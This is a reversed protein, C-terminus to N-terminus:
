QPEQELIILDFIYADIHHLGHKSLSVVTFSIRIVIMSNQAVMTTLMPLMDARAKRNVRVLSNKDSCYQLFLSHGHVPDDLVAPVPTEPPQAARLEILLPHIAVLLRVAVQDQGAPWGMGYRDIKVTSLIWFGLFAVNAKGV